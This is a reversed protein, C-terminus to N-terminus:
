TRGQSSCHLLSTASALDLILMAKHPTHGGPRRSRVTVTVPWVQREEADAGALLMYAVHYNREQPGQFIVRSKELLYTSMTAGAVVGRSDFCVRVFKGFRSSNNNRGTQLCTTVQTM